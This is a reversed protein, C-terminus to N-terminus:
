KIRAQSRLVKLQAATVGATKLYAEIGGRKAVEDVVAEICAKKVAVGAQSSLLFENIVTQKSAGLALLVLAAAFSARDRGIVCHIYVPYATPDGLVSFLSAVAKKESFLALYNQPTDPLLKPMAADVVKASVCSSPPQSKQTSQMRLDVVTKIGLAALESCGKNSLGSLHGGRLVKRCAVRYGGGLPHDGLDRANTVDNRLVRRVCPKAAVQDAGGQDGALQVAALAHAGVWQAAVQQDSLLVGTDLGENKGSCGTALILLIGCTLRRHKM